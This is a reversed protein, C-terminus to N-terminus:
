NPHDFGGTRSGVVQYWRRLASSRLGPPARGRASRPLSATGAGQHVERAPLPSHPGMGCALGTGKNAPEWLGPLLARTQRVPVTRLWSLSSMMKSGARTLPKSTFFFSVRAQFSAKPNDTSKTEGPQEGCYAFAQSNTISNEM